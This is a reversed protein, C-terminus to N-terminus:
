QREDDKAGKRTVPQPRPRPAERHKAIAEGAVRMAWVQGFRMAEVTAEPTVAVLKRGLPTAYFAALERIEEATFRSAWSAASAELIEGSRAEFEPLLIEDVIRAVEAPAVKPSQQQMGQVVFGRMQQLTATIQQKGGMADVLARAAERSEPSAAPQAAAPLALALAVLAAAFAAPRRRM